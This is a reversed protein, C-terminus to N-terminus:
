NQVNHRKLKVPSTAGKNLMTRATKQYGRIGKQLYDNNEILEMLLDDAEVLTIYGAGVFGGLLCSNSVVQTHGNDQIRSFFFTIKEIVEQKDKDNIDDPVEFEGEFPVFANIKGGRTTWEEADERILIDNDYSLFLPLVINFNVGDFGEFQSLYYALGCFYEKYEEVSNPKPIRIIFKCGKGSPSIYAAVVCKLRNFLDIKLQEAHNIKDFEVMMIPNFDVINLLTRGNGDTVVSPVFSYLTEQKLKDKTKLDGAATAERIKAFAELVEKKPNAHSNLFDRLTLTGLPTSEWIRASFYQFSINDIFNDM